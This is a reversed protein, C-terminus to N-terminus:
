LDTCTGSVIKVTADTLRDGQGTDTLLNITQRYALNRVVREVFEDHICREM